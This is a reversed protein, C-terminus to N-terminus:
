RLLFGSELTFGSSRRNSVHTVNSGGKLFGLARDHRQTDPTSRPELDEIGPRHSFRDNGCRYPALTQFSAIADVYENSVFGSLKGDSDDVHQLVAFKASTELTFATACSFSM